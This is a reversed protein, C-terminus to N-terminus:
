SVTYRELLGEMRELSNFMLVDLISLRPVFREGFQRYRIEDTEIFRLDIGRAAFDKKSYLSRGGSANVYVTTDFRSCLDFVRDQGSLGPPTPIDSSLVFSTSMQLHACIIRLQEYLFIALNREPSRLVQEVIAYVDMFYPAKSYCQRITKLMKDANHVVDLENIRKFSSAGRVPLVFLSEEGNCLIRNRAIWGQKIYNVDDYVVFTDVTKILQFYGIYPFFYPQRIALRMVVGLGPM